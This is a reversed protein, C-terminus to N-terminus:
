KSYVTLEMTLPQDCHCHWVGIAQVLKHDIFIFVIQERLWPPVQYEHLLKKISRGKDRGIPQCNFQSDLHQRLCCTVKYQSSILPDANSFDVGLEGEVLWLLKEGSWEVPSEPLNLPKNPVIYLLGQYRRISETKFQLIPQKDAEALAVEEWLISLQKSSPYQLNNKKLWYRIVNNRRAKSLQSVISIDLTDSMFRNSSCIALDQQAVEDLLSQQEQCLQASRSVSQAIAPWRQKLLPSIKHRIFNRDFDTNQNSEDEIWQLQYCQAYETLQQRSFILLPRLLMGKAFSQVVRVGQLGTGGSGRKLALLLTELQDDQHHGTLILDNDNMKEKLCRYRADRAVAELSTRARNDLEVKSSIFNVALKQCLDACFDGWNDAHQSLGHNVNHASLQVAPNLQRFHTLLHLLVVSDLGGSLAVIYHQSPTSLSALLQNLHEVFVHSLKHEM